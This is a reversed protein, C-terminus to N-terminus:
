EGPCVPQSIDSGAAEFLAPTLQTQDGSIGPAAQVKHFWFFVQLLGWRM